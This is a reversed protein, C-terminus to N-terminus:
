TPLRGRCCSPNRPAMSSRSPRKRTAPCSFSAADPTTSLPVFGALVMMTAVPVPRRVSSSTPPSFATGAAGAARRWTCRVTGVPPRCSARSWTAPKCGPSWTSTTRGLVALQIASRPISLASPMNVAMRPSRQGVPERSRVQCRWIVATSGCVLWSVSSAGM